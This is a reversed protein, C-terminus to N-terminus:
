GYKLPELRDVVKRLKLFLLLRLFLTPKWFKGRCKSTFEFNAERYGVLNGFEQAVFLICYDFGGKINQCNKCCDCNKLIAKM